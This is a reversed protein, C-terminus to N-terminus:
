WCCARTSRPSSVTNAPPRASGVVIKLPPVSITLPRSMPALMEPPVCSTKPAAVPAVTNPPTSIMSVPPVAEPVVILAPPSAITSDPPVSLPV